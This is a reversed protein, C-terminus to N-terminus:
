NAEILVVNNRTAEIFEEMALNKLSLAPKANIIIKNAKMVDILVVSPIALNLEGSYDGSDNQTKDSIVM